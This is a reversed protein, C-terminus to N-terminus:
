FKPSVFNIILLIRVSLIKSKEEFHENKTSNM